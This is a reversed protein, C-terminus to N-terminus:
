AATRVPRLEAVARCDHLALEIAAFSAAVERPLEDVRRVLSVIAEIAFLRYAVEELRSQPDAIFDRLFDTTGHDVPFTVVNDAQPM